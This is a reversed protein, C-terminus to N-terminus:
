GRQAQRAEKLLGVVREVTAGVEGLVTCGSAPPHGGGGLELAIKSVDFGPKARFSCEVCPQGDGNRKETFAASIDAEAATILTSSLRMDGDPNGVEALQERTVTAWIVGDELKVDQLAKGWLQLVSFPRRNLTRATIDPLNGGGRVLRMAAELVRDDTNSTRFGLTDTALGTLLVEALPGELPVNLVDALYVLMQCTAACEPAVWNVAGFYTNTIHHDIVVIPIEKHADSRFVSGMRDASSADLVVILDYHNAVKSPGIIKEAGPTEILSDSLPDHLSLTPNKGLYELIYGMGLLSGVADGDPGVHSICLIDHSSLLNDLLGDPLQITASQADSAQIESMLHGMPQLRNLLSTM